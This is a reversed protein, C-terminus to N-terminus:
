RFCQGLIPKETRVSLNLHLDHVLRLHHRFWVLSGHLPVPIGQKLHQESFLRARDYASHLKDRSPVKAYRRGALDLRLWLNM